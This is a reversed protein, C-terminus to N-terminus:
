SRSQFAVRRELKEVLGTKGPPKTAPEAPVAQDEDPWGPETERQYFEELVDPIEEESFEFAANGFGIRGAADLASQDLGVERQHDDLEKATTVAQALTMGERVTLDVYFIASRHSQTTSKGRLRLQLPLCALLDGSVAQYYRL